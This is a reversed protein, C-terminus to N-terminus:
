GPRTPRSKRLEAERATVAARDIRAPLLSTLNELAAAMGHVAAEFLDDGAVLSQALGAALCDGCGIPNVVEAVRPPAFQEIKGATAVWVPGAGQTMVVGQAGAALLQRIAGRVDDDTVLTRGFTHGLEERNPKVVLPRETLAALLEPGRVDLVAPLARARLLDRYFTAPTGRPLSGTLVACEAGVAAEAYAAQFERLEADTLPQANEVLETTAGSARDLLTTCVRTPAATEIWRRRAGLAAFEREIQERAPGALPSVTLSEVGLCRLAVGVNLVKGSGCWHASAARNVEGIALADFALIQQWAPTLGAAVIM